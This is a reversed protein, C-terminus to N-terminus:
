SKQWALQIQLWCCVLVSFVCLIHQVAPRAHINMKKMVCLLVIFNPSKKHKEISPVGSQTVTLFHSIHAKNDRDRHKDTLPVTVRMCRLSCLSGGCHRSSLGRHQVCSIFWSFPFSFLYLPPPSRSSTSESCSTLSFLVLSMVCPSVFFVTSPLFKLFFYSFFSAHPIELSSISLSLSLTHKHHSLFFLPPTPILQAQVTM